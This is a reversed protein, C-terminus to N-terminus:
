RPSNVERNRSSAPKLPFQHLPDSNVLTVVVDDSTLINWALQHFRSTPELFIQKIRLGSLWVSKAFREAYNKRIETM